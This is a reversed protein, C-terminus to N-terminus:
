PQALAAIEQASLAKAYIRVDDIAGKMGRYGGDSSGISLPLDNTGIQFSANKSGELQGNIYLRITSGDYTAAVHM